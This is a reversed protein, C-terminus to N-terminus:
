EDDDDDDDDDNDKSRRTDGQKEEHEFDNFCIVFDDFDEILV